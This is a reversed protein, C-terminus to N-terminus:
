AAMHTSDVLMVTRLADQVILRTATNAWDAPSDPSPFMALLPAPNAVNWYEAVDEILDRPTVFGKAQAWAKLDAKCDNSSATSTANAAKVIILQAKEACTNMAAPSLWYPAEDHYGDPSQYTVTEYAEERLFSRVKNSTIIGFAADGLYNLLKSYYAMPVLARRGDAYSGCFDASSFLVKLVRAIQDPADVNDLFENTMAERVLPSPDRGIFWRGIKRCQYRAAPRHRVLMSLFRDLSPPMDPGAVGPGDVATSFEVGPWFTFTAREGDHKEPYFWRTTCSHNHTWVGNAYPIPGSGGVGRVHRPDDDILEGAVNVAKSNWGTLVRSLEGVDMVQDYRPPENPEAIGLGFLELIERGLNENIEGAVNVDNNMFFILPVSAIHRKLLGEFNGLANDHYYSILSMTSALKNGGGIAKHGPVLNNLWFEAMHGHLADKRGIISAVSHEAPGPNDSFPYEVQSFGLPWAMRRGNPIGAIMEDVTAEVPGLAIRDRVRKVSPTYARLKLKPECIPGGPSLAFTM